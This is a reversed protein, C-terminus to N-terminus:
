RKHNYLMNVDNIRVESSAVLHTASYKNYSIYKHPFHPRAFPLRFRNIVNAGVYGVYARSYADVWSRWLEQGPKHRRINFETACIM